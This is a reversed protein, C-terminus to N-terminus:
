MFCNREHIREGEFSKMFARKHAQSTWIPRGDSTYETPVGAAKDREMAEKVQKPHVAMSDSLVPKKWGCLSAGPESSATGFRRDFEEETMLEEFVEYRVQGDELTVRRM